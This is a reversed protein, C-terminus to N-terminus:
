LSDVARVGAWHVVGNIKTTTATPVLQEVRRNFKQKGLPKRNSEVCWNKYANFFAPQPHRADIDVECADAIFGAVSDADRRFREKAAAGSDTTVFAGRDRLGELRVLGQNLLGSLEQRTTLKELLRPDAKGPDFRRHFPVISWRRFFADSSDPTTPPENASFLLRAYPKFSFAHAYKREGTVTDGGTISKFMSSAQLARADLDAFVNALKGELEAVSFRDEDLRHLAVSSVNQPGLLRTILNLLTSKGNAGEGLFMMAMQLSQDPFVLYGVLEYILEVLDAALVEGFFKDIAPCEARPDFEAGIQIPSLFDPSHPELNGDLDVIGNLCNIRDLPPQPWLRPSSDRLYAITEDARNRKWDDGLHRVIRARLDEEGSPRYAGDRFVYLQGSGNRAVPTDVALAEALHRPVFKPAAASPTQAPSAGTASSTIGVESSRPRHEQPSYFDSCGEIAKAITPNRYTEREWKERYLASGRFLRDIRDPDGGTWWALHSCLALDAESGSAHGHDGRYLAEFSPNAAFGKNLLDVDELGVPRPSVPTTSMTEPPFIDVVIKDLETQRDAIEGRQGVEGTICFYREKDYTEFESGWPTKSTRKRKGNLQARVIIHLGNGSPSRETYSDLASVITEAGPHLRGDDLFCDDLDVGTYPDDAAFVYGVGDANTCNIAESFTAWSERDTSSARRSPQTPWYPVKTTKGGREERRWVVWQKRERLEVPIGIANTTANPTM